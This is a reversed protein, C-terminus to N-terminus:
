DHRIKQLNPRDIELVNYLFKVYRKVVVDWSFHEKVYEKGNQGMRGAERPHEEVYRVAGEFEFYDRAYLGGGSEQVFWKTVECAANVLVPRGCLWSEMVVISFSENASLQCLMMAAGYADYKDQIPVFGLDIVDGKRHQPIEVSGGGILVLKISTDNRKRYEAFYQVLTHVNKGMDKRGAYLIFEDSIQYKERFRRANYELNTDVGAGIVATKVQSLNYVSQALEYEPQALFIMGGIGRFLKKYLALTMYSEKHLCPVLVSKQPCVQMGYYTTGFMYPIFLFVAYEDVHEKMFAYMRPSNVMEKVFIKEEEKTLPIQNHILKRNVADFASTDRKRVRFRRVAIGQEQTLGEKHYNVNWDSAFEKVCTTLVELKVGAQTLHLALGRAEAEAGGPIDMGFWPTVVGIKKM